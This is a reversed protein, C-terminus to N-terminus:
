QNPIKSRGVVRLPGDDHTLKVIDAESAMLRKNLRHPASADLQRVALAVLADTRTAATCLANEAFRGERDTWEIWYNWKGDLRQTVRTLTHKDNLYATHDTAPNLNFGTPRSTISFLITANSMTADSMFLM